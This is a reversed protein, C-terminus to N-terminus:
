EKTANGRYVPYLVLGTAIGQVILILSDQIIFMLPNKVNFYFAGLVIYLSAILASYLLGQRIAHGRSSGRGATAAYLYCTLVARITESVIGAVIQQKAYGGPGLADKLNNNFLSAAVDVLPVSVIFVVALLSSGIILLQKENKM